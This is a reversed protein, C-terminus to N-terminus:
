RRLLRAVYYTAMALPGVLLALWLAWTGADYRHGGAAMSVLWRGAALVGAVLGVVLWGRVSRERLVSETDALVVVWLTVVGVGAAGIWALVPVLARVAFWWEGASRGPELVAALLAFTAGLGGAFLLPLLLVTAPLPGVVIKLLQVM